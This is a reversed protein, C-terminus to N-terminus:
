VYDSVKKRFSNKSHFLVACDRSCFKANARRSRFEKDCCACALTREPSPGREEAALANCRKSCYKQARKTAEYPEGCRVCLRSEGQFAGSRATETCVSSCFRGPTRSRSFFTKGCVVCSLPRKEREDANRRQSELSNKLAIERYPAFKAAAHLACHESHTLLELNELRNDTKDENKHHVDYGKPIPGHAAEWMERHLRLGASEYYWGKYSHWTKGGWEVCRDCM